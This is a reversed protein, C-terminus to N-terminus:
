GRAERGRCTVPGTYIIQRWGCRRGGRVGDVLAVSPKPVAMMLGSGGNDKLMPHLCRTEVSYRCGRCCAMAGPFPQMPMLYDYLRPHPDILRKGCRECLLVVVGEPKDDEDHERWITLRLGERDDDEIAFPNGAAGCSQCHALDRPGTLTESLRPWPKPPLPKTPKSM